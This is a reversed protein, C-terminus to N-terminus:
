GRRAVEVANIFIRLGAGEDTEGSRRWLPHNERYLFAEPHPMLGLLRGTTDCLGAAAQFSGNPNQPFRQTAKGTEPDAYRLPILHKNVVHQEAQEAVILRGEGHRVPVELREMGRTYVCPSNPDVMLTVWGDYFRGHANDVLSASPKALLKNSSLGGPLLGLRVMTQFGNCIGIVLGGDAVFRSLPEALRARLRNALVRGAGLHDGFSFGGALALIQARALLGPQQVLDNLHLPQVNGGARRFAEATEAECNIGFGTPIIM